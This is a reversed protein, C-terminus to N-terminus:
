FGSASLLSSMLVEVGLALTAVSGCVLVARVVAGIGVSSFVKKVNRL